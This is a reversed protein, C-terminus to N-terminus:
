KLIVGNRAIMCCILSAGYVVGAFLPRLIPSLAYQLYTIEPLPRNLCPRFVCNCTASCGIQAYRIHLMRKKKFVEDGVVEKVDIEPTMQMKGLEKRVREFTMIAINSM